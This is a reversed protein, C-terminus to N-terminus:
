EGAEGPLLHNQEGEHNRATKGPKGAYGFNGAGDPLQPRDDRGAVAEGGDDDGEEAPEIREANHCGAQNQRKGIETAFCCLYGDAQRVLYCPDELSHDQEEHEGAIGEYMIADPQHGFRGHAPLPRTGINSSTRMVMAVAAVGSRSAATPSSTVSREPTSFRPTSPMIIM